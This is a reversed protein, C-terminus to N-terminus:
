SQWQANGVENIIRGVMEDLENENLKKELIKEAALIALSAIQDKVDNIANIKEREIEEETSRLMGSAKEHAEALINKYQDEAKITANRVIERGQEKYEDIRKEYEAKLEAADSNMKEANSITNAIGEQRKVMYNRV